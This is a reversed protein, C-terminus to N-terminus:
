GIKMIKIVKKLKVISNLMLYGKGLTNQEIVSKLIFLKGEFTRFFDFCDRVIRM